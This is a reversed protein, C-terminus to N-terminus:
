LHHMCIKQINFVQLMNNDHKRKSKKSWNKFFIRQWMKQKVITCTYLNNAHIFNHTHRLKEGFSVTQRKDIVKNELKWLIYKNCFLTRAKNYLGKNQCTKSSKSLSLTKWLKSCIYIKGCTILLLSVSQMRPKTRKYHYLILLHTCHIVEKKKM